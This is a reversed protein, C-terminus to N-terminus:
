SIKPRSGMTQPDNNSEAARALAVAAFAVIRIQFELTQSLPL